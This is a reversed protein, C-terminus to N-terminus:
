ARARAALHTPIPPLECNPPPAPPANEAALHPLSRRNLLGRTRSDPRPLNKVPPPLPPLAVSPPPAAPPPLDEVRAVETEVVSGDPLMSHISLRKSSGRSYGLEPSFTRRRAGWDPSSRNKETPEKSLRYSSLKQKPEVETRSVSRQQPVIDIVVDEAKRLSGMSSLRRPAPRIPAASVPKFSLRRSKPDTLHSRLQETPLRPLSPQSYSMAGQNEGSRTTPREPLLERPSPQDMVMSLPRSLRLSTPPSKRVMVRPIVSPPLETDPTKPLPPSLEGDSITSRSFRRSAPVSFNPPPISGLPSVVSSRASNTAVPSQASLEPSGNVLDSMQLPNQLSKRRDSLDLATPRLKTDLDFSGDISPPTPFHGLTPSGAPSSGASTLTTRQGVSIYSLRNSERLSDLHRGETSTISHITSSDDIAGDHNRVSDAVTSSGDDGISGHRQQWSSEHSLESTRSSRREERVVLTRQSPRDRLPTTPEEKRPSGTETLSQRGGLYAIQRRLLTMWGDMDKASEFVMLM